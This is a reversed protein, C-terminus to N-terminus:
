VYASTLSAPYLKGEGIRNILRYKESIGKFNEELRQMDEAVSEDVEDDTSVLDDEEDSYVEESVVLQEMKTRQQTQRLAPRADEHIHIDAAGMNRGAAAAAVVSAARAPPLLHVRRTLENATNCAYANTAKGRLLKRHGNRLTVLLAKRLLVSKDRPGQLQGFEARLQPRKAGM